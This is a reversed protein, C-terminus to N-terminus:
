KPPDKKKPTIRYSRLVNGNAMGRDREVKAAAEAARRKGEELSGGTTPATAPRRRGQGIPVVNSPVPIPATPAAPRDSSTLGGLDRESLTTGGHVQWHGAETRVVTWGKACALAAVTEGAQDWSPTPLSVFSWNNGPHMTYLARDDCTIMYSGSDLRTAKWLGPATVGALLIAQRYTLPGTVM